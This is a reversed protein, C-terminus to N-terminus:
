NDDFILILDDNEDTTFRNRDVEIEHTTGCGYLRAKVVNGKDCPLDQLLNMLDEVYL